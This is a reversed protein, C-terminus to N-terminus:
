LVGRTVTVTSWVPDTEDTIDLVDIEKDVKIVEIYEDDETNNNNESKDNNNDDDLTLDIQEAERKRKILISDVENNQIRQMLDLMDKTHYNLQLTYQPSTTKNAWRILEPFKEKNKEIRRGAITTLSAQKWFKTSGDISKVDPIENSISM